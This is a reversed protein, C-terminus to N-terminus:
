LSCQDDPIQFHEVFHRRQGGSFREASAWSHDHKRAKTEENSEHM